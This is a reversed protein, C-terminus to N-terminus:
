CKEKLVEKIKLVLDIIIRKEKNTCEDMISLFDNYYDMPYSEQNGTMIESVTTDLASCISHLLGLSVRNKGCEIRSVYNISVDVLEALDGQSLNRRKRLKRIRKGMLVYDIQM